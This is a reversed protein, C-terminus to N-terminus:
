EDWGIGRYKDLDWDEDVENLYITHEENDDDPEPEEEREIVTVDIPAHSIEIVQNQEKNLETWLADKLEDIGVGAVSSIPLM